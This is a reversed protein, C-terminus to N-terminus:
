SFVHTESTDMKIAEGCIVILGQPLLLPFSLLFRMPYEFPESDCPQCSSGGEQEVEELPLPSHGHGKDVTTTSVQRSSGRTCDVTVDCYCM